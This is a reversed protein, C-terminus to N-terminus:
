DPFLLITITGGGGGLIELHHTMVKCFSEQTYEQGGGGGDGTIIAPHIISNPFFFKLGYTM